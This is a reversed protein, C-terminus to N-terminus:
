LGAPVSLRAVFADAQGLNDGVFAGFTTGGVFVRASPGFAVGTPVDDSPTSLPLEFPTPLNRSLVYLRGDAQVVGGEDETLVSAVLAVRPGVVAVATPSEAASTGLQETTVELGAQGASRRYRRVFVDTEGAGSAVLDGATWGVVVFGMQEVATATAADDASSGFQDIGEDAGDPLLTWVFADRGGASETGLTGDTFGVVVARGDGLVSIGGLGEDAVSGLQRAWVLGGLADYKRVCIDADGALVGENLRPTVGAVFAQGTRDVAVRRALCPVEGGISVAHLM